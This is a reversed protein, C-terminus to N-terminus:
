KHMFSLTRGLISKIHALTPYPRVMLYDDSADPEYVPQFFVNRLVEWDHLTGPQEQARWAAVADDPMDFARQFKFVSHLMAAVQMSPAGQSSRAIHICVCSADQKLLAWLLLLQGTFDPADQRKQFCTIHMCRADDDDDEGAAAAAAAAYPNLHAPADPNIRMPRHAHTHSCLVGMVHLTRTSVAAFSSSAHAAPDHCADASFKTWVAHASQIAHVQAWTWPVLAIGQALAASQLAKETKTHVDLQPLAPPVYRAASAARLQKSELLPALDQGDETWRQAEIFGGDLGRATPWAM